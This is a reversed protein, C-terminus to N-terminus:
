KSIIISEYCTPFTTSSDKSGKVWDGLPSIKYLQLVIDFGFFQCGSTCYLQGCINNLDKGTKIHVQTHTHAHMARPWKIWIYIQTIEVMTLIHCQEKVRVSSGQAEGKFDHEDGIDTETGQCGHIERGAKHNQRKLSTIYICAYLIYGKSIPKKELWFSASPIWELSHMYWYKM